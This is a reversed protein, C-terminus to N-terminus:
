KVMAEQCKELVELVQLSLDLGLRYDPQGQIANLFVQLAKTLPPTPNDGKYDYLTGDSTMVLRIKKNPIHGIASFATFTPYRLILHFFRPNVQGCQISIPMQQALDLIMAVDHPGYDWLESYDRPPNDSRGTTMIYQITAPNLQQKILQYNDAFLHIHNVLIPASYQQLQRAEALSLSLPKEIMTPINRELAYSAIEVHSQPPTCIIVGEPRQNILQQWNSRTAITLSVQPFTSLTQIYNQGWKGAGILLLNTM